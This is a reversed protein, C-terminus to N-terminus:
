RRGATAASPIGPRADRRVRYVASDALLQFVFPIGELLYRRALRGPEQLLRHCWELGLRQMWRPARHVDGCVFSFSVGLGVFWTGPLANRAIEAVATAKTFPLGVFVFDPRSDLLIRRIHRLEDADEEFGHPPCYTGAIVLDPHRECLVAAAADATGPDGGILHIRLRNESAADSLTYILDSGAVRSPLPTGQIRSAWLLPMGDAVRIDARLAMARSMQSKTVTRLHDLNPTVLYGGHGRRATEVLHETLGTPTYADIPLGMLEVRSVAVEATRHRDARYSM